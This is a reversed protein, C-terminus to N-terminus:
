EQGADSETDDSPKNLEDQDEQNQFEQVKTLIPRCCLHLTLWWLYVVQPQFFGNYNILGHSMENRLNSGFRNVLLGQLDFATDEGFIKILESKRERFFTNLNHEDQIGQRDLGSTIFGKRYLLCRISHEIQPILLHAAILFDGILGAHLGKAYIYERGQPVFLNNTVLPLFDNVRVNHELNIQYIAPEIVAQAQLRQYYVAQRFMEDELSSQRAVVKGMENMIVMPFLHQAIYKESAEQVQAQLYSFQTPTGMEVALTFLADHISKDKVKERSRQVFQRIDMEQSVTIMEAPSKQQYELLIKHLEEVREKMKGVRRFAEIGQQLHFFAITYGISPQSLAAESEKVYTEALCVLAAQEDDTNQGQGHWRAKIKWYARARRWDGAAEARTAAKEALAAYKSPESQRYEQLLEMLKASLWLPDEGNYRDLVAEIYAVADTFHHNIKRALRVAREIRGVCATWHQPDELVRASELYSVVALQAMQFKRKRVWLIDAIRARLEADSIEPVVDALVELQEDQLHQFIDAFFEDTSDPKIAAATVAALLAFVAQTKTNGVTGAEQSKSFFKDSYRLCEKKDCENIVNEWQSQAFDNKSLPTSLSTM